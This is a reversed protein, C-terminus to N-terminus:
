FPLTLEADLALLAERFQQQVRALSAESDAEFRFVLNPTTNSPRVLGWGDKFDVRLGDVTNKVGDVFESQEVLEDVFAFKKEDALSMKLEPTNVSDPLAAFIDSSTKDTNALIELLRAAAYLADDFGFYRDRFFLHGSMEGGFAANLQKMKQKVFSHGTKWMVANGGSETIVTGVHRSCKVDYVISAGPQALLIHKAFLMLQRDPWIIEGQNTVVGLRDGDGDFAFGIDAQKAKVTAILDQLNEVQSPDPHHHPFHGDVECFIPTVECGLITFLQPAIGGAIGNGADIVIKLPKQLKINRVLYDCYRQNIDQHSVRGSGFVFNNQEIRALLEGIREGFVAESNIVMKLGNYDGPNHSGTIMVGTATDLQHTAFYVLPTPVAGINIVDCGSALLGAQFADMWRQGSLRGDRGIIVTPEDCRLTEAGFALGLTYVANDNIECDVIGRIDYARFVHRPIDYTVEYQQM